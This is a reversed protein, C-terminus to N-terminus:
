ILIYAQTCIYVGVSYTAAGVTTMTQHRALILRGGGKTRDGQEAGFCLLGDM